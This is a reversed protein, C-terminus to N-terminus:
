GREGCEVGDRGEVRGEMGGRTEEEIWRRRGGEEGRGRHVRVLMVVHCLVCGYGQKLVTQLSLTKNADIRKMTCQVSTM